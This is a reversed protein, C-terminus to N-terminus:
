AFFIFEVTIHSSRIIAHIYGKFTSPSAQSFTLKGRIESLCAIRIGGTPITVVTM